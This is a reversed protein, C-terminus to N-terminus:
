PHYRLYADVPRKGKRRPELKQHNADTEHLANEIENSTSHNGGDPRALSADTKHSIIEPPPNIVYLAFPDIDDIEM